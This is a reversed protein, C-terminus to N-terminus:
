TRSTPPLSAGQRWITLTTGKAHRTGKELQAVSPFIHQKSSVIFMKGVRDM